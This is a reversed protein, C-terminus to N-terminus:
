TSTTGVGLLGAWVTIEDGVKVPYRFSIGDVAVTACRSRTYRAAMNGAALDLQSM